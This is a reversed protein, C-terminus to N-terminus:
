VPIAVPLVVPPHEKWLRSGKDRSPDRPTSPSEVALKQGWSRWKNIGPAGGMYGVDGGISGPSDPSLCHRQSGRNLRRITAASAGGISGMRRSAARKGHAVSHGWEGAVSQGWSPRRAGDESGDISGLAVLQGWGPPAVLQGRGLISVPTLLRWRIVGSSRWRNVGSIRGRNANSADPDSRWWNVGAHTAASRCGRRGIRWWNVGHPSVQLGAHAVM